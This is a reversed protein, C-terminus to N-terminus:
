SWAVSELLQGREWVAEQQNYTIVVLVCIEKILWRDKKSEVTEYLNGSAVMMLVLFSSLDKLIKGPEGCVVACEKTFATPDETQIEM